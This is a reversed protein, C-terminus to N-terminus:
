EGNRPFTASWATELFRAGAWFYEFDVTSDLVELPDGHASLRELHESLGFLSRQQM